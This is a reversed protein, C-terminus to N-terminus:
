EILGAAGIAMEGNSHKANEVIELRWNFPVGLNQAAERARSFYAQGRAFRHAGQQLAEPTRRLSPHAADNDLSGLLVVVDRQLAKKVAELGVAADGLGYPYPKDFDLMTYWGANAPIYRGVRADPKYLLFRHVFQSGASHGFLTYTGQVSGIYRTVTDFLPEVASFAWGEEPNRTALDHRFVNGLNYGTVEPFQRQSFEPALVIFRKLQAVPAWEDRYRDADRRTGHMVIVIPLGSAESQTPVYTWIPIPPGGWDTLIFRGKGEALPAGVAESMLREDGTVSLRPSRDFGPLYECATLAFAFVLAVAIQINQKAM